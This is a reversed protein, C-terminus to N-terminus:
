VSAAHLMDLLEWLSRYLYIALHKDQMWSDSSEARTEVMSSLLQLQFDAFTAYDQKLLGAKPRIELAGTGGFRHQIATALVRAMDDEWDDTAFMAQKREARSQALRCVCEMFDSFTLEEVSSQRRSRALEDAHTLTSCVFATNAEVPTFRSPWVAELLGHLQRLTLVATGRKLKGQAKRSASPTAAPLIADSERCSAHAGFLGRLLPLNRELVINVIETYVLSRRLSNSAIDSAKTIRLVQRSYCLLDEGLFLDVSTVKAGEDKSHSPVRMILALRVIAEVFEFRVMLHGPNHVHKSGPAQWTAAIFINDLDAQRLTRQVTSGHVAGGGAPPLSAAADQADTGTSAGQGSKDEAAIVPVGLFSTLHRWFHSWDVSTLGIIGSEPRASICLRYLERIMPYRRSVFQQVAFRTSDEPFLKPIKARAWDAVFAEHLLDISDLLGGSESELVRPAFLGQSADWSVASRDPESVAALITADEEGPVLAREQEPEEVKFNFRTSRVLDITSARVWASKIAAEGAVLDTANGSTVTNEICLDRLSTCWLAGLLIEMTAAHGFRNFGLSASKLSKSRPLAAAICGGCKHGLRNYSLDLHVLSTSTAVFTGLTAAFAPDDGINCHAAALSAMPADSQLLAAFLTGLGVHTVRTHSIDLVQLSCADYVLPTYSLMLQLTHTAAAGPEADSGQAAKDVAAPAETSVTCVPISEESPTSVIHGLVLQALSVCSKDSLANHSLDLTHLAPSREDDPEFVSSSKDLIDVNQSQQVAELAQTFRSHEDQGPRVAPVQGGASLQVHTAHQAPASPRAAAFKAGAAKKPREEDEILSRASSGEGGPSGHGALPLRPLAGLSLSSPLGGSGDFMDDVGLDTALGRFMTSHPQANRQRLSQAGRHLQQPSMAAISNGGAVGGRVPLVFPAAHLASSCLSAEAHQQAAMREGLRWAQVVDTVSLLTCLSPSTRLPRPSGGGAGGVAAWFGQEEARLADSAAQITALMKEGPTDAAAEVTPLQLHSSAALAAQQRGGGGPSGGPALCLIAARALQMLNQVPMTEGALPHVPVLKRVATALAPHRQQLAPLAPWLSHLPRAAVGGSPATNVHMANAELKASAGEARGPLVSLSLRPLAQVAVRLYRGTASPRSTPSTAGEARTRTLPCSVFVPRRGGPGRRLALADRLAAVDSDRLGCSRLGLRQVARLAPLAHLLQLACVDDQFTPTREMNVALVGAAVAEVGRLLLALSAAEMEVAAFNFDLGQPCGTAHSHPIAKLAMCIAQAHQTSIRQHSLNLAQAGRVPPQGQPCLSMAPPSSEALGPSWAALARVVARMPKLPPVACRCATIYRQLPQGGPPSRMDLPSLLSRAFARSPSAPSASQPTDAKLASKSQPTHNLPSLASPSQAQPAPSPWASTAVSPGMATSGAPASLFPASRAHAMSKNSSYMSPTLETLPSGHEQSARWAQLAEPTLPQLAFRSASLSEQALFLDIDATPFAAPRLGATAMPKLGQNSSM